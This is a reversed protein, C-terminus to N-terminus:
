ITQLVKIQELRLVIRNTENLVIQYVIKKPKKLSSTSTTTSSPNSQQKQQEAMLKLMEEQLKLDWPACYQTEDQTQINEVLKPTQPPPVSPLPPPVVPVSSSNVNGNIQVLLPNSKLKFDWPYNYVAAPSNSNLDHENTEQQFKIENTKLNSRFSSRSSNSFSSSGGSTLNAMQIYQQQHTPTNNQQQNNAKLNSSSEEIKM